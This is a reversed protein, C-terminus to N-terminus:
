FKYQLTAAYNRPLEPLVIQSGFLNPFNARFYRENGVNKVNFGFFWDETQYNIGLNVLTYAPLIVSGSLGSAVSDVDIVSVNAAIEDTVNYTGTFTFINEPTGARRAGQSGDAQIIAGLTGGAFTAPDVNPFDDTGVFSFRGGADETTLNTVEIDSWGATLILRETVAWRLEIEAGETRSTQNTVISQASRDTREQEYISLAFYLKDDLFSGKVGFEILESTDFVADDLLDGTNIEAGQGAVLTSQESATFYPRISFRDNSAFRGVDWSISATWSVGDVTGSADVDDVQPFLIDGPTFSDIDITDWRIGGTFNLGINNVNVDVLGAIGFNVYDGVDFTSFDEGTRTALLRRDLATSPGTLDRRNFHENFFDDGHEFNTIRISPSLQLSTNVSNSEFTKAVIIKDEFVRSEAFQSFGYANENLNDYQEYYAQNKFSWGGDSVYEIDFYFIYDENELVDDAAVLVQSRSLQTTGVNQLALANAIVSGEPSNPDVLFRGFVEDITEPNNGDQSVGPGDAGDIFLFPGLGFGGGAANLEQQSNFGDGNLDASIPSGTIYTGDDILEQTLRNWGAIQNGAFNHYMGGFQVRVNDNVDMDFSAQILTNDTSSNDYFSGSDEIEGYLWFGFDRGAISGPGGVEATLINKDWTGNTYSISGELEDLYQGSDARGSKPSFNLFGGIKSPGTIPSAPGRVIDVRDAAAIPTPFNGPNDLRRIGRFYTEGPTGRVDLSGAVGFFSQTFTGPALVVLEDIDKINFREIQEFSVTSASRPTELLSKDFGFVSEVSEGPLSRLEGTVVIEEIVEDDGEAALTNTTALASVLTAIGIASIAMARPHRCNRRGNTTRM